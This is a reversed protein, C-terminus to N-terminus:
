PCNTRGFDAAFVALDSGDVDGDGDFDGECPDGTGCDIRGFDAAFVALDSGDVDGDGDFDGECADLLSNYLNLRGGTVVKGILSDLPDVGLLIRQIRDNLSQGPYEAATLAVAGSVHPAAMSTGGMFAYGHTLEGPGVGIDDLYIGDYNISFDSWLVFRVQFQDWFCREDIPVNFMDWSGESSGTIYGQYDWASVTEAWGNNGSEMDDFFIQTFKDNIEVDDIYYGDETISGDSWLVFAVRFQDTWFESRFRRYLKNEREYSISFVHFSYNIQTTVLKKRNRGIQIDEL